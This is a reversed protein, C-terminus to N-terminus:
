ARRGMRALLRQQRTAGAPPDLAPKCVGPLYLSDGLGDIAQEIADLESDDWVVEQGGARGLDWRHVTLDFGYFDRLTEALTTPGFYGDYATEVLADDAVVARVGALHERWRTAPDEETVAGLEAGRSAFFDRQTGVVHGLLAAADWEECPSPASWAAGSDVADVTATFRDANRLYSEIAPHM